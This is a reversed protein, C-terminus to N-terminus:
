RPPGTPGAVFATVVLRIRGDDNMAATLGVSVGARAGATAAIEVTSIIYLRAGGGDATNSALVFSATGGAPLSVTTPGPDARAYTSGNEVVIPLVRDPTPEADAYGRVTIGPYGAVACTMGSANTVALLVWPQSAIAGGDIVRGTLSGRPCAGGVPGTPATSTAGPPTAGEPRGAVAYATAVVGVVGVAAALSALVARARRRRRALARVPGLGRPAVPTHARFDAFARDVRREVQDSM